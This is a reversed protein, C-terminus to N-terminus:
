ADDDTSGTEDEDARVDLHLYDNNLETMFSFLKQNQHKNTTLMHTSRNEIYRKLYVYREVFMHKFLEDYHEWNDLLDHWLRMLNEGSLFQSCTFANAFLSKHYGGDLGAILSIANPFHDRDNRAEPHKYCSAWWGFQFEIDTPSVM